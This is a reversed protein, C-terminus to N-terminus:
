KVACRLCVITYVLIIIYNVYWALHYLQDNDNWWFGNTTGTTQYEVDCLLENNLSIRYIENKNNTIDMIHQNVLFLGFLLVIFLAKYLKNM